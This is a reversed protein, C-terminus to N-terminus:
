KRTVTSTYTKTSTLTSTLTTYAVSARVIQTNTLVTTKPAPTVTTLPTSTIVLTPHFTLALSYTSSPVPNKSSTGYKTTCLQYSTSSVTALTYRAFVFLVFLILTKM